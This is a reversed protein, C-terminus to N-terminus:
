HKYGSFNTGAREVPLWFPLGIVLGYITGGPEVELPMPGLGDVTKASQLSM